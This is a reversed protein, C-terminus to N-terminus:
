CGKNSRVLSGCVGGDFIYIHIRDMDMFSGISLPVHRACTDWRTYIVDKLFVALVAALVTTCDVSM